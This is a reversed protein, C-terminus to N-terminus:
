VSARQLPCEAKCAIGLIMLEILQELLELGFAIPMSTHSDQPSCHAVLANMTADFSNMDNM